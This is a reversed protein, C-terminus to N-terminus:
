CNRKIITCVLVLFSGFGGVVVWYWGFGDVVVGALAMVVLRFWGCYGLVVWFRGLGCHGLVVWVLRFWAM